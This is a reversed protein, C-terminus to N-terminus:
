PIPTNEGQLIAPGPKVIGLSSSAPLTSGPNLLTGARADTLSIDVDMVAMALLISKDVLAFDATTWSVGGVFLKKSAHAETAAAIIGALSAIFVLHSRTM